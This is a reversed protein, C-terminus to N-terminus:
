NNLSADNVATKKIFKPHLIYFNRKTTRANNNGERLNIYKSETPKQEGM